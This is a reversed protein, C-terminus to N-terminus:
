NLYQGRSARYNRPSVGMQKKFVKSFSEPSGFGISYAITKIPSNSHLLHWCASAIKHELIYRYPSTNLHTKFLRSLYERSIGLKAALETVSLPHDLETNIIDLARKTLHSEASQFQEAEKSAVLEEFLQTVLKMAEGASFVNVQKVLCTQLRSVVGSELPLRYIHGFQQILGNVLEGTAEGLLQIYMFEWPDEADEPYYYSYNPDNIDCLFGQGPPLAYIRGNSTFAGRGTLTIKFLYYPIDGRGHGTFFYDPSSVTERCIARPRPLQDVRPTVQILM